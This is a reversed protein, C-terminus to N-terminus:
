AMCRVLDKKIYYNNGYSELLDTVYHGFKNWDVSKAEQLYNLKGVKYLDVFGQTQHILEVTQYPDFVPELSVWTRIGMRHAKELVEIREQTPAANPEYHRRRDEDVFVLTCAYTGLDPRTAILDLDPESRKGGKTLITYHINNNNFLQIAQRTLHHETEIHQYPDCTFCLLVNRQDNNRSMEAVDAALKRIVNDRPKSIVFVEKTKRLAAPAYCYTCGHDCGSYLNAALESYERAKGRPEYIINM